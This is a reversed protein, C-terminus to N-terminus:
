QEGFETPDYSPLEALTEELARELDEYNNAERYSLAHARLPHDGEICLGIAYIPIGYRTAYRAAGPIEKALGDTVAILRFEGYGLQKKYQAVLRDSAFRIAEALPTMGGSQVNDIAQMFEDRNDGSLPVVERTGQADFVFLGLNANDPIKALFRRVAEKAGRIKVQGACEERMSGSGDFIFYFNRSLSVEGDPDDLPIEMHEVRDPQAQQVAERESEPKKAQKDGCGALCSMLCLVCLFYVLSWYCTRCRSDQIKRRSDKM